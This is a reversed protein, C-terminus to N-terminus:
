AATIKQALQIVEASKFAALGGEIAKSALGVANAAEIGSGIAAAALIAAYIGHAKKYLDSNSDSVNQGTYLSPYAAKLADAILGVYAQELNHGAKQLAQGVVTKDINGGSVKSTIWDVGKGLVSMLGPAGAVLGAITLALENIKGDQPSPKINAVTSKLDGLLDKLGQEIAQEAKAEEAETIIGALKQFRKAEQILM